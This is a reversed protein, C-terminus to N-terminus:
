DVLLDFLQLVDAAVLLSDAVRYEQYELFSCHETVNWMLFFSMFTCKSKLRLATTFKWVIEQSTEGTGPMELSGSSLIPSSNAHALVMALYSAVLANM